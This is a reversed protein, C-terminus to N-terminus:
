APALRGKNSRGDDTARYGARTMVEAVATAVRRMDAESLTPHVLFMLSTEGLERAVPLRQPPRKGDAFAKELYVESCSGGFCPVGARRIEELIRDRDWGAALREPRVFAYFKYYAHRVDDPPLTLRLAPVDAFHEILIAANRRRAEVWGDLKRLAVRGIASQVETLRWNTGIREHLWRFTGSASQPNRSASPRKSVECSPATNHAANYSKGHDKLSWARKYVDGRNTVIMGGEGATTMIKDQCFSYAGVDGISGVAQGRYCAGHAQACDEIVALKCASALDMIPGMDCPWGALHVVIVARTRQSMRARITDASVNQSERDVDAFVPHAGCRVVASATAIFTRCPVIVEDGPGIGLAEIALELAATGNAVAVAHAVGAYQAFEREFERGELGTWYNLRGSRLVREAAACQDADCVPWPALQAAEMFSKQHRIPADPQLM